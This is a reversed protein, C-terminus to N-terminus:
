IMSGTAILRLIRWIAGYIMSGGITALLLFAPYLFLLRALAPSAGLRTGKLHYSVADRPCVDVCRGCKACTLRARGAKVSQEDLSFTPCERICRGCDLCKERDIRVAFVNLKNTFSQMAGFPCFLGCQTRRKTLLPLVIVLGVFLLVFIITQVLTTISTIAAFETVAKYPCLWECYVPSLALASLLVVALLVAFPLYTWLPDIKKILPRKTLRSFGEDLGGYFCGWSCWARGLALSAALWIVIMSAINAFGKLLSGPFIITRTLAAPIIVMPIVMHCFPTEGDITNAETLAMSGRVELLNTGFTVIFCVAMTVFLLARYKDTRGTKVMLFFCATLFGLTLLFAIGQLPESPPQGGTLLMATLIFMPLTLLLAKPWKTRNLGPTIRLGLESM